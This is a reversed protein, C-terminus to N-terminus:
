RYTMAPYGYYKRLLALQGIHYSEHHLQFEIAAGFTPDDVPFRQPSEPASERRCGDCGAPLQPVPV